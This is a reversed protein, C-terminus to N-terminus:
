PRAYLELLGCERCRYGALNTFIQDSPSDELGQRFATLLDTSTKSGPIMFILKGEDAITRTLKLFGGDM